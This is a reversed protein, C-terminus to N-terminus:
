HVKSRNQDAADLYRSEAKLSVDGFDEPWDGFAGAEDVDASLVKTFGKKDRTFWHLKVLQPELESEAVLTQLGLLFLSSHTEVLVRIGRQAAKAVIRALAIQAKPHLHMEPQEIFVLQGPKAVHLAVIVPLVQSMALGVDAINVMDAGDAGQHDLRGVRIEVHTDEVPRAFVRWTLGLLELDQAVAKLVRREDATQWQAVVSAAYPHFPGPFWDGVATVPYTREPNGRIGPVHIVSRIDSSFPFSPRSMIRAWDPLAVALTAGDKDTVTLQAELFCEDRFVKWKLRVRDSPANDPVPIKHFEKYMDRRSDSVNQMIQKQSMGPRLERIVGDSDSYKMSEIEFGKAKSSRRFSLELTQKPGIRLGVRFSRSVRSGGLRSLLQSTATFKVHPGSLYLPGADYGVELTQKLLLLPQVISSKGSNNSGALITLPRIEIRQEEHVSKYGSVWLEEIGEKRSSVSPKTASESDTDIPKQPHERESNKPM